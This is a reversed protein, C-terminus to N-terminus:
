RGAEVDVIAGGAQRENSKDDAVHRFQQELRWDRLLKIEAERSSCVNCGSDGFYTSKGFGGCGSKM